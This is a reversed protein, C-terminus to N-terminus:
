ESIIFLAVEDNCLGKRRERGLRLDLVDKNNHEEDDEEEEEGDDMGAEVIDEDIVFLIFLDCHL